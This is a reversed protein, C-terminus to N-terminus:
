RFSANIVQLYKESTCDEEGAILALFSVIQGPIHARFILTM